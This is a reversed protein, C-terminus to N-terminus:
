RARKRLGLACGILGIVLGIASGAAASRFGRDVVPSDPPVAPVAIEVRPPSRDPGIRRAEWARRAEVESRARVAEDLLEESVTGDREAAEREVQETLVASRQEWVDLKPDSSSGSGADSPSLWVLGTSEYLPPPALLLGVTGGGVVLLLVAAAAVVGEGGKAKRAGRWRLVGVFLAVLFGATFGVAASWPRRDVSHELPADGTSVLEIRGKGTAAFRLRELLQRCRQLEEEARDREKSLEDLRHEVRALERLKKERTSISKRIQSAEASEAEELASEAEVLAKTEAEIRLELARRGGYELATELLRQDLASVKMQWNDMDREVFRMRELDDILDLEKALGRYAELLCRVADRAREPGEDRFSVEIHQTGHKRKVFIRARATRFEEATGDHPWEPSEMARRLVRDNRLLAEHAATYGEYFPLV